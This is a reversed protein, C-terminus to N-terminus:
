VNLFPKNIIDYWSMFLDDKKELYGRATKLAISVNARKCNVIEAIFEQNMKQEAMLLILVYRCTVHNSEKSDSKVDISHYTLLREIIENMKDNVEIM